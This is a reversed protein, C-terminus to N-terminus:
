LNCNSDLNSNVCKRFEKPEQWKGLAFLGLKNNQADQLANYYMIEKTKPCYETLIYAYGDKVMQLNINQGNKFIECVSRGYRDSTKCNLDVTNGVQILKKLYQLSKDGIDIGNFIQAPKEYRKHSIEPADVCYFRIDCNQGQASASITDGDKIKTIIGQGDCSTNAQVQSTLLFLAAIILTKM